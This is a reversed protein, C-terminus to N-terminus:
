NMIEFTTKSSDSPIFVVNYDPLRETFDELIKFYDEGSSIRGLFVPKAKPESETVVYPNEKMISYLYDTSLTTGWARENPDEEKEEDLEYNNKFKDETILWQNDPSDIERAIMDGVDPHGESLDEFIIDLNDISEGKVFTRMEIGKVFTRMEIGKLITSRYRKFDSPKVEDPKAEVDKDESHYQRIAKPIDSYWSGIADSAEAYHKLADNMLDEKPTQCTKEEDKKIM